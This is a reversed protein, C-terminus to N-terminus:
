LYAQFFSVLETVPVAPVGGVHGVAGMNTAQCGTATIFAQQRATIATTDDSAYWVKIPPGSAHTATNQNPDHTAVGANYGSLNTYATEIEAAWGQVNNAHMYDLDTVPVVLGICAVSSANARAWNLCALAGMSVGYLGVKGSKAGLTGQVYTKASGIRSQATDNGWTAVGGLDSAFVQYGADALGYTQGGASNAFAYMAQQADSARGHAFVIAPRTGDQKALRSRIAIHRESAVYQGVGSSLTIPM